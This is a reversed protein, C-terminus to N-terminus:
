SLKLMANRVAKVESEEENIRKIVFKLITDILEAKTLCEEECFEHIGGSLQGYLVKLPNNGLNKLSNPLYDYIGEILNSMQHNERFINLLRQIDKSEQRDIKSLDEIIRLIENEVIRRLYAYAGIGYNQSLCILAKKYNIQDEKDLYQILDKDPTIEFPPFQGLKKISLKPFDSESSYKPSIPYSKDTEAHLLFHVKFSKCYECTGSYHQVFSIINERENCEYLGLYHDNDFNKGLDIFKRPEIQLTFTQISKENPCFFSFTLGDFQDPHIFTRGDVDIKKYLPYSNLFIQIKVKEEM